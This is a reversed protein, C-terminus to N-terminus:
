RHQRKGINCLETVAVVNMRLNLSKSPEPQNKNTNNLNNRNSNAGAKGIHFKKEAKKTSFPIGQRKILIRAYRM